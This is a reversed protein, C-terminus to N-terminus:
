KYSGFGIRKSTNEISILDEGKPKFIRSDVSKWLGAKNKLMNKDLKWKQEAFYNFKM